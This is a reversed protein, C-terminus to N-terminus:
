PIFSFRYNVVAKLLQFKSSMQEEDMSGNLRHLVVNDAVSCLQFSRSM